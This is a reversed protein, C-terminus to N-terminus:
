VDARRTGIRLVVVLVLLFLAAASVWIWPSDYWTVNTTIVNTGGDSRNEAMVIVTSFFLLSFIITKSFWAKLM